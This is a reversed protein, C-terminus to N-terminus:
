FRKTLCDHSAACIDDILWRGDSKQFLFMRVTRRDFNRFRVQVASQSSIPKALTLGAIKYDQAGVVFDAGYSQYRNQWRRSQILRYARPTFYSAGAPGSGDAFRGGSSDPPYFREFFRTVHNRLVTDISAANARDAFVPFAAMLFIVFARSIGAAGATARAVYM